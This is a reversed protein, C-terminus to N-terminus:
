SDEEIMQALDRRARHLRSKVASVTMNLTRAIEEYSYDYWYRLTIAARDAPSLAALLHQIQTEQEQRAVVSEPNLFEGKLHIETTDGTEDSAAIEDEFSLWTIRRRRLRDICYHSAISLLWSSFPRQLDYSRLNTYARLFTEQTADEAEARNGLMRYALNYVPTQYAGVLRSFATQDGEQALRIWEREDTM